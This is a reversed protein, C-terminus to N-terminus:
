EIVRGVPASEPRPGGVVAGCAATVARVTRPPVFSLNAILMVLGFTAMGLGLGIGLHMGAVLALVLPRTRAPWVLAVYFLELLVTGHTLLAVLHPWGALWTLDLSRYEPNAVSLWVATGNWWSEGQLKGLGSFLYVLCLHLQILRVAVNAGVSPVGGRGRRLADISYCGGCPGLMLYMALLCNIKDLGFLATPARYAYSVAFLFALVSMPRSWAGVTLLAFVVLGVLHVVWLLGTSTIPGLLSWSYGGARLQEGAASSLWADPGFFASLDLSWVLHTYFLMAGAAIRIAGLTAPDAPTFWFGNWADAWDAAWARVSDWVALAARSM